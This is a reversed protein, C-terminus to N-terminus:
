YSTKVWFVYRLPVYNSHLSLYNKKVKKMKKNSKKNNNNQYKKYKQYNQPVNLMWGDKIILSMWIDMWENLNM